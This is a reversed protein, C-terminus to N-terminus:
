GHPTSSRPSCKMGVFKMLWIITNCVDNCVRFLLEPDARIAKVWAGVWRDHHVRLHVQTPKAQLAACLYASGIDARLENVADNSDWGMRSETWHFIEHALALWYGEVKGPGYVFMFMYPIRISDTDRNYCCEPGFHAKIKIKAVDVLDKFFAKINVPPPTPPQYTRDTQELNFVVRDENPLYVGDEPGVIVESGVFRWQSSTAWFPSTLKMRNAALQLLIPSTGGYLKASVILRPFSPLRWPIAGALLSDAVIKSVDNM